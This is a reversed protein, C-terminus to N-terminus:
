RLELLYAAIARADGAPMDEFAPMLSGPKLAASDVIFRGLVDLELQLTGAAFSPKGAFHTLDPGIAGGEEHGRVVHCAPCGYDAFLARGAHELPAAPEAAAELWRDFAGAEMAIVDFAMNAHSLGCFEACAGRYRGERTARAVLQNTRGPIMDMKGALGPIWFSHIVDPSTLLFTVPRGVPIRIENATEVAPRQGSAPYSVRWWFQEGTVAIAFDGAPATRARMTPLSTLLLATLILTPGIGGLWLIARMGSAHDLRGEPARAAYLALALVGITIVAAGAFMAIALARTTEAEEGFTTFM